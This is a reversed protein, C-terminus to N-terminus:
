ALFALMRRWADASAEAHETQRRDFFSHPAGDYVVIEHDVVGDLAEDFAHVQEVPIAEDAGGFLGLLPCRVDGAHEIASPLGRRGGDLIGYFGVARDLALDDSMAALFSLLGGYCFGVTAVREADPLAAAAAQADALIQDPRTQLVHPMYDFDEGREGVGATRGFYDIAMAHHGAEAFREALAIYFRYLGRVDPLIVVAPGHPEAARALAASFRTGDASTLELPEAPAAGAM